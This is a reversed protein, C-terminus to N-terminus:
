KGRSVEAQEKKGRSTRAQGWKDRNARGCFQEWLGCFQEGLWLVGGSGKNEFLVGNIITTKPFGVGARWKSGWRGMQSRGRKMQIEQREM